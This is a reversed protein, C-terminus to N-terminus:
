LKYSNVTTSIESIEPEGEYEDIAIDITGGVSHANGVDYLVVTHVPESSCSM